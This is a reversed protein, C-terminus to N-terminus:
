NQSFLNEGWIGLPDGGPEAPQDPFDVDAEAADRLLDQLYSMAQSIANTIQEDSLREVLRAGDSESLSGLMPALDEDIGGSPEAGVREPADPFMARFVDEDFLSPLRGIEGDARADFIERVQEADSGTARWGSGPLDCAMAYPRNNLRIVRPVRPRRAMVDQMRSIIEYALPGEDSTSAILTGSKCGDIISLLARDVIGLATRAAAGPRLTSLDPVWARTLVGSPIVSSVSMRHRALEFLDSSYADGVPALSHETDLLPRDDLALMTKSACELPMFNVSAALSRLSTALVDHGSAACEGLLASAAARTQSTQITSRMRLNRALAQADYFAQEGGTDVVLGHVWLPGLADVAAAAVVSSELSGDVVVCAGNYPSEGVADAIGRRLAAYMMEADDAHTAVVPEELPGEFSFDIDVLSFSEEFSPLSAALEGWPTMVFSGGAHVLGQSLGVSGVAALWANAGHIDQAFGDAAATPALLRRSAGHAYAFPQMFVILDVDGPGLGRVDEMSVTPLIRVGGVEVTKDPLAYGPGSPILGTTQDRILLHVASDGVGIGTDYCLLAPCALGEELGIVFKHREVLYDDECLTPQGLIESTLGPSYVILDAGQEAAMRSAKLMHDLTSAFDGTQAHAQCIALKM